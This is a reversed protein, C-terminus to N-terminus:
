GTRMSLVDPKGALEVGRWVGQDLQEDLDCIQGSRFESSTTLANGLQAPLHYQHFHSPCILVQRPTHDRSVPNGARTRHLEITRRQEIVASTQSHPRQGSLPIGAGRAVHKNTPKM